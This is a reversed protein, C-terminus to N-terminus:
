DLPYEGGKESESSEERTESKERNAAIEEDQGGGEALHDILRKEEALQASRVEGCIAAGPEVTLDKATVRGQIRCGKRVCLVDAVISGNIIGYCNLSEVEIDGEISGSESIVLHEGQVDGNIRGDIRTKGSFQIEGSLTMTKDIISAIVEQEAGIAIDGVSIAPTDGGERKGDNSKGFVGM